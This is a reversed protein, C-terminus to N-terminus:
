GDWGTKRKPLPTPPPLTGDKNSDRHDQRRGRGRRTGYPATRLGRQGPHTGSNNRWRQQPRRQGGRRRPQRRKPPRRPMSWRTAPSHRGGQLLPTLPFALTFPQCVSTSTPATTLRTHRDHCAHTHTKKQPPPHVAPHPAPAIVVPRPLPPRCATATNSSFAPSRCSARPSATPPPGRTRPPVPSTTTPAAYTAARRQPAPATRLPGGRWRSPEAVDAHAVSPRAAGMAALSCVPPQGAASGHHHRPSPTPERVVCVSSRYMRLASQDAIGSQGLPPCHRACLWAEDQDVATPPSPTTITHGRLRFTRHTAQTLM